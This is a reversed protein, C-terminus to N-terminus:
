IHISAEGPMNESDFPIEIQSYCGCALFSDFLVYVMQTECLIIVPKRGEKSTTDVEGTKLLSLYVKHIVSRYLWVITMFVQGSLYKLCEIDVFSIAKSQRSHNYLADKYRIFFICQVNMMWNM